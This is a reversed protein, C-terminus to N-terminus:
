QRRLAAVAGSVVLGIGLLAMLVLLFAIVDSIQHGPGWILVSMAFALISAGILTVIIGRNM